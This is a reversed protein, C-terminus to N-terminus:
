KKKGSSLVIGLGALLLWKGYKDFFSHLPAPKPPAPKALAPKPPAPKPPAPKPKPLLAAPIDPRDPYNQLKAATNQWTNVFETLPRPYNNIRFGKTYNPGSIGPTPKPALWAFNNKITASILKNLSEYTAGKPPGLNWAVTTIRPTRKEIMPSNGRPDRKLPPNFDDGKFDKVQLPLIYLTGSPGRFKMVDYIITKDPSAIAEREAPTTAALETPDLIRSDTTLSYLSAPIIEFDPTYGKVAPTQYITYGAGKLEGQFNEMIEAPTYTRDDLIGFRAVWLLKTPQQTTPTARQTTPGTARQTTPGTPRLTTPGTARQTTPGTPRLTTPGTPRLTTPIAIPM